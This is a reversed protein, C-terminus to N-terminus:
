DDVVLDGTNRPPRVASSDGPITVYTQHLAYEAVVRVDMPPRKGLGASGSSTSRPIAEAARPMTRVKGEKVLADWTVLAQILTGPSPASHTITEVDARPHALHHRFLKKCTKSHM